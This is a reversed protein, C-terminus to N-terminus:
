DPHSETYLRYSNSKWRGLLQIEEESLGALRASTAAGRRFSHDTYNGEYGLICIGEQLKKTALLGMRTLYCLTIIHKPFNNLYTAFPSTARSGHLGGMWPDRCMSTSGTVRRTSSFGRTPHFNWSHPPDFAHVRSQQSPHFLCKSVIIYKNINHSIEFYFIWPRPLGSGHIQLPLFFSLYPIRFTLFSFLHIKMQCVFSLWVYVASSLQQIHQVRSTSLDM